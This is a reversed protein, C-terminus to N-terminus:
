PCQVSTGVPRDGPEWEGASSETACEELVDQVASIAHTRVTASSDRCRAVLSSFLDSVTVRKVIGLDLSSRNCEEGAGKVGSDTGPSTSCDTHVSVNSLRTAAISSPSSTSAVTPTLLLSTRPSPFAANPDRASTRMDMNTVTRTICESALAASIIAVALSRRAPKPHSCSRVIITLLLDIAEDRLAGRTRGTVHDSPAAVDDQRAATGSRTKTPKSGKPRKVRKNPRPKTPSELEGDRTEHGGSTEDTVTQCIATLVVVVVDKIHGRDAARDTVGAMLRQLSSLVCRWVFVADGNRPVGDNGITCLSDDVGGIPRAPWQESAADERATVLQEVVAALVKAMVNLCMVRSKPQAALRTNAGTLISSIARLRDM